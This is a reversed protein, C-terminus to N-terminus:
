QTDGYYKAARDWAVHRPLRINQKRKRAEHTSITSVIAVLLVLGMSIWAALMM